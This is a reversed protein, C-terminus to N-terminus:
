VSDKNLFMQGHLDANTRKPGHSLVYGESLRPGDQM